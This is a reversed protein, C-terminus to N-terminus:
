PAVEDPRVVVLPASIHHLSLDLWPALHHCCSSLELPCQPLSEAEGDALPVQVLEAFVELRAEICLHGIPALQIALSTGHVKARSLAEDHVAAENM